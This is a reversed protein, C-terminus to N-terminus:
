YQIDNYVLLKKLFVSNKILLVLIIGKEKEEVAVEMLAISKRLIDSKSAHM